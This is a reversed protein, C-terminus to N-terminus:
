SPLRNLALHYKVLLSHIHTNYTHQTHSNPLSLTYTNFNGHILSVKAVQANMETSEELNMSKM